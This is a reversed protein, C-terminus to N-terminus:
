VVLNPICKKRLIIRLSGIGKADYWLAKLGDSWEIDPNKCHLSEQYEQCNNLKKM